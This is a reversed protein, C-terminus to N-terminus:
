IRCGKLVIEDILEKTPVFPMVYVEDYQDSMHNAMDMIRESGWTGVYQLYAIYRDGSDNYNMCVIM